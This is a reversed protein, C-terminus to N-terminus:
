LGREYRQWVGPRVPIFIMVLPRDVARDAFVPIGEYVGVRLIQNCDISFADSSKGFRSGEFSM